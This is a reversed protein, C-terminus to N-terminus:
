LCRVEGSRCVFIKGGGGGRGISLGAGDSEGALVDVGGRVFFAGRGQFVTTAFCCYVPLM